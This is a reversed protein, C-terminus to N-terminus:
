RGDEPRRRGRRAPQPSSSPSRVRFVRFHNCFFSRDLSGLRVELEPMPDLEPCGPLERPFMFRLCALGGSRLARASATLLRLCDDESAVELVNSLAIFDVSAPERDELWHAVDATEFRVRAFRNPGPSGSLYPPGGGPPYRELFTQWLWPNDAAPSTTLFREMRLGMLRPCDEPLGRALSGYVAWLVPRSLGLRFAARWLPGDWDERFRRRQERPDNLSLFARCRARSRVLLHFLRLGRGLWRDVRGARHLGRSLRRKRSAWYSRTEPDLPEALRAFAPRADRDLAELIEERGLRALMTQKLRCLHIQAPSLDVAHIAAETEAALTFATDGASAVALIRRPDDVHRLAELEAGPDERMQGFAPLSSQWFRSM